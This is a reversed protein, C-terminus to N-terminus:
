LKLMLPPTYTAQLGSVRPKRGEAAFFSSSDKEPLEPYAVARGSRDESEEIGCYEM